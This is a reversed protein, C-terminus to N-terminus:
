LAGVHPSSVVWLGPSSTPLPHTAPHPSATGKGARQGVTVAPFLFRQQSLPSLSASMGAGVERKGPIGTVRGNSGELGLRHAAPLSVQLPFLVCKQKGASVPHTHPPPVASVQGPMQPRGFQGPRQSQILKARKLWHAPSTM